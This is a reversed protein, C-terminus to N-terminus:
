FEFDLFLLACLWFNSGYFGQAFAQSANCIYRYYGRAATQHVLRTCHIISPFSLAIQVFCPFLAVHDPAPTYSLRFYVCCNSFSRRKSSQAPTHPLTEKVIQSRLRMNSTTCHLLYFAPHDKVSLWHFFRFSTSPQWHSARTASYIIDKDSQLSQQHSRLLGKAHFLPHNLWPPIRLFSPRSLSLALDTSPPFHSTESLATQFTPRWPSSSTIDRPHVCM